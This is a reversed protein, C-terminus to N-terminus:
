STKAKLKDLSTMAQIHQDYGTMGGGRFPYVSVCPLLSSRRCPISVVTAADVGVPFVFSRRMQGKRFFRGARRVAWRKQTFTSAKISSLVNATSQCFSDNTNSVGSLDGDSQKKPTAPLHKIEKYGSTAHKCLSEEPLTVMQKRKVSLACQVDDRQGPATTTMPSICSLKRKTEAVCFWRQITRFQRPNTIM